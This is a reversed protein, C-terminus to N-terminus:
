KNSLLNKLKEQAEKSDKATITVGENPFHFEREKLVVKEEKPEKTSKKPM